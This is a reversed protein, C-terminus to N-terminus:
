FPFSVITLRHMAQFYLPPPQSCVAASVLSCSVFPLCLGFLFHPSSAKDDHLPKFFAEFFFIRNSSHPQEFSLHPFLM